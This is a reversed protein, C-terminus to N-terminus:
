RPKQDPIFRASGSPIKTSFSLTFLLRDDSDTVHMNWPTMHEWFSQQTDDIMQGASRVAERRAAALDPLETGSQDAIFKGNDVHFFYRPM